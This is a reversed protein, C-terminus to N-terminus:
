FFNNLIIKFHKLGFFNLLVILNINLKSCFVGSPCPSHSVPVSVTLSCHCGPDPAPVVTLLRGSGSGCKRYPDPGPIFVILFYVLVSKMVLFFSGGLLCNTFNKWWFFVISFGPAPYPKLFFSFM